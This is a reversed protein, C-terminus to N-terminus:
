NACGSKDAREANVELAADKRALTFEQHQGTLLLFMAFIPGAMNRPDSSSELAQWTRSQLGGRSGAQVPYGMLAAAEIQSLGASLRASKLADGNPSPMDMPTYQTMQSDYDFAGHYVPRCDGHRSRSLGDGLVYQAPAHDGRWSAGIEPSNLIETSRSKAFGEVFDTFQTPSLKPVHTGLGCAWQDPASHGFLICITKQLTSPM